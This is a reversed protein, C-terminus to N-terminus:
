STPPGRSTASKDGIRGGPGLGPALYDTVSYSPSYCVAIFFSSVSAQSWSCAACDHHGQVGSANCVVVSGAGVAGSDYGCTHLAPAGVALFLYPLLALCLIRITLPRLSNM